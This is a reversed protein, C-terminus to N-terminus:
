RDVGGRHVVVAVIDRVVLVDRRLKTRKGVEVPKHNFCLAAADADHEVKHDIMRRVLVWPENLGPLGVVIGVAVKVDPPFWGPVTAKGVCQCGRETSRGPREIRQRAFVVQMQEVTALRVQVPFIRFNSCLDVLHHVPPKLAANGAKAHVDDVVDALLDILSNDGVAGVQVVIQLLHVALGEAAM